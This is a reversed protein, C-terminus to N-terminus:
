NKNLYCNIKEAAKRGETMAKVVLSAGSAADGAAFIGPVTTMMNENIKINGRQDYQIELEELLKNHKVHLFGTALLVLDIDLAFDSDPIDEMIMKGNEAKKWKVQNFYGKEVKIGRSIFKKTSIAWRRECGEQHSSSTRLINPWDPWEPNYDKNWDVPKPLIEFQYVKKAGQRNATGVCDSGTDGGGIVLVVKDRASIIEGNNKEGAVLKNADTLYQMAFYIGDLDIGTIPLTRPTHAGPTLLIVDHKRKLYTASIDEGILVNTEFHIGEDKLIEIRRDIISKELKFDPIGYRLIGGPQLDKEFVTITHGQKRLQQAATLGAPGSGVIAIKKGTEIAPPQPIVWGKEFATEIIALELEKITVAASNIALTCASECLAPCIRGTIEPFNSTNELRLYAEHWLGKYIADNWEPILNNLPCGVSHCFPIGCDMCRASQLTLKDSSLRNLVEKYDLLRENVPRYQTPERKYKLFGKVEGM